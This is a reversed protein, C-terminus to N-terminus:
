KTEAHNIKRYHTVPYRSWEVKFKKAEVKGRAVLTSLLKRIHDPHLNIQEAIQRATEFGDEVEDTVKPPLLFEWQNSAPKQPPKSRLPSQCVKV